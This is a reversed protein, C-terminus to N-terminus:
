KELKRRRIEKQLLLLERGMQGSISSNEKSRRILYPLVDNVPGYPLYKSANYGSRALNFTINDSMGYLQSFHVHPHDHPLDNDHMYQAALMCSKENHTGIFLAITDLRELCWLVAEDYDNDTATKNPQIPSPYGNEEARKREKEMYAGRVLKAGLLYNNRRSEQWQEKLAALRDHRYFQFTNFVIINERNFLAMMQHSLADVSKQIWSEEADILVGIKKDYATQCVAKLREAVRQWEQKEAEDFPTGEDYKQLLQFRAFGTVKISIMPIDPQSGAHRIAKQFEKVAQDYNEEGEAAEVGYDLACDVSFTHLSAATQAAEELTEGGCFQQFITNRIMGKIPLKLQLALPAFASGIKVLLGYRMLSFM